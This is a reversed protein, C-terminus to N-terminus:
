RKIKDLEQENVKIPFKQHLKALWQKELEKQYENIVTGRAEDFTKARPQEIKQIQIWRVTGNSSITQEGTSWKAQNLLPNTKTYYGEDITVTNPAQSNYAKEVDKKSSSFFQFGVRMNREPEVAQRFSGYDKEIIRVISINNSTLFKVVNRIRTASLTEPEKPLRYGSVEVLYDPNKELIILLDSLHQMQEDSIAGKGESFLIENGKKQLLYPSKVLTKRILNIAQTDAATVVTALAREPYQYRSPNLNYFNKQGVSDSLSRQWVNEEMVQSLLVGERIEGIISRFEPATEELHDKEYQILRDNLFDYYYHQFTVLPSSDKPRVQQKQKVYKLFSLATYNDKEISFLVSASWDPSVPKMYDWRGYVLSSDALPAVLAWQDPFEKVAFKEKLRRVLAQELVRGRSDTVVKQKITPAMAQYSELGKKEILKIIHWGYPSLFPKSYSNIKSLAFSTEEVESVMQGVGFMPLLGHNKSSEKDDSYAGVVQDWDLGDQLKEYAEKIKASAALRQADTSKSDIRAMIHAVKVMGRNSRRDTVKIIHYGAKTRVPQSLKGASLNYMATEFPYLTQFVTNYGLDGKNRVATPDKSFKAALNGFDEGEEARGRMAIAARYAQLTDAPAADESVQVLIHSARIEQKMRNYAEASLKEVLVKDVLFNKALQERYSNIEERYDSTTDRGESKAQLVKIKLDTYLPLYEQPTLDKSSDTAFRNKSYSEQFDELSFKEKGIEILAAQQQTVQKVPPKTKCSVIIISTFVALLLRSQHM